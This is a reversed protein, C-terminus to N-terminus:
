WLLIKNKFTMDLFHKSDQKLNPKPFSAESRVALVARLSETSVRTSSASPICASQITAALAASNTSCPSVQIKYSGLDVDLSIIQPQLQRRFDSNRRRHQHQLRESVSQRAEIEHIEQRKAKYLREM